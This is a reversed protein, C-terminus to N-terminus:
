SYFDYHVQEIVKHYHWTAFANGLVLFGLMLGLLFAIGAIQWQEKSM